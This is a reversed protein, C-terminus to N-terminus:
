IHKGDGRPQWCVSPYCLGYKLAEKGGLLHYRATQSVCEGVLSCSLTSVSSPLSLFYVLYKDTAFGMEM